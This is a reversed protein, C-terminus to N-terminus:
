IVEFRRAAFGDVGTRNRDDGRKEGAFSRESRLKQESCGGGRLVLTQGRTAVENLLSTMLKQEDTRGLLPAIEDRATSLM